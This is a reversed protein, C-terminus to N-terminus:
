IRLKSYAENILDSNPAQNLYYHFRSSLEPKGIALFVCVIFHQVKQNQKPYNKIRNKVLADLDSLTSLKQSERLVDCFNYIMKLAFESNLPLIGNKTPEGLQAILTFAHETGYLRLLVSPLVESLLEADHSECRHFVGYVEELVRDYKFIHQKQIDPDERFVCSIFIRLSYVFNVSATTYERLSTQISTLFQNIFSASYFILHEVGSTILDLLWPPLHLIQYAECIKQNISNKFNTQLPEEMIRFAISWLLKTYEYSMPVDNVLIPDSVNLQKGIEQLVFGAVYQVVPKIVELSSSQLLYIFGHMTAERVFTCEFTLGLEVWQLIQKAKNADTMGPDISELGLITMSKFLSYLVFGVDPHDNLYGGRIVNKMESYCFEFSAREDFLDSLYTMSRITASLLPLPLYDLGRSFWHSYNDFLARVSSATDLECTSKLLHESISIPLRALNSQDKRASSEPTTERILTWLSIASLQNMDYISGDYGLHEINEGYVLMPDSKTQLKWKLKKLRQYSRSQYFLDSTERHKIYFRGITNGPEPILLSHILISTLADVARSSCLIRESLNASNDNTIENGTPTSSLVGFLSMWIEEFQTRSIWGLWVVRAAFDNLIDINSLLHINVLPIHLHGSATLEVRPSWNMKVATMSIIALPHLLPLRLLTKLLVDILQDKEKRSKRDFHAKVLGQATEAMGRIMGEATLDGFKMNLKQPNIFELWKGPSETQQAQDKDLLSLLETLLRHLSEACTLPQKTFMQQASEHQLVFILGEITPSCIFNRAICTSVYNSMRDLEPITFKKVTVNHRKTLLSIHKFLFLKTQLNKDSTNVEIPYRDLIFDVINQTKELGERYNTTSLNISDLHILMADILTCCSLRSNRQPISEIVYQIDNLELSFIEKYLSFDSCISSSSLISAYFNSTSADLSPNPLPSNTEDIQQHTSENSNERRDTFRNSRNSKNTTLDFLCRMLRSQNAMMVAEKQEKKKMGCLEQITFFLSALKVNNSIDCPKSLSSSRLIKAIRPYNDRKLISIIMKLLLLLNGEHNILKPNNSDDLSQLCLGEFINAFWVEPEVVHSEMRMVLMQEDVNNFLCFLVPVMQRLKVHSPSNMGECDKLYQAISDLPRYISPSMASLSLVAQQVTVSELSKAFQKWIPAFVSMFDISYIAKKEDSASHLFLLWIDLMKAPQYQFLDPSKALVADYLLPSESRQVILVELLVIEVASLVYIASKEDAKEVLEVFLKTIAELKVVGTKCLVILFQAIQEFLERNGKQMDRLQLLVAEFLTKKPDAMTYVIGDRMLECMTILIAKRCELIPYNIYYQILNTVFDEFHSLASTIEPATPCHVKCLVDLRLWGLKRMILKDTFKQNKMNECSTDYDIMIQELITTGKPVIESNNMKLIDLNISAASKGFVLKFLQHLFKTTSTPCFDYVVKVYLLIEELIPKAQQYTMMELYIGLCELATELLSLFKDSNEKTLSQMFNKHAGQIYPCLQRLVSSELFSSQKYSHISTGLLRSLDAIRSPSAKKPNASLNPRSLISSSSQSISSYHEAILSYYLNLTRLPLLLLRDMSSSDPLYNLSSRDPQKLENASRVLNSECYGAFLTACVRMATTLQKATFVACDAAEIMEVFLGCTLISTRDVALWVQPYAAPPFIQLLESFIEILAPLRHLEDKSTFELLGSVFQCLRGEIYAKPKETQFRYAPHLNLVLPLPPNILDQALNKSDQLLSDAECMNLIFNKLGSIAAKSVKPDSDFLLKNYALIASSEFNRRHKSRMRWWEISSLLEACSIKLLFFSSTAENCALQLVLPLLDMQDVTTLSGIAAQLLARKRIPQFSSAIRHYSIVEVCIGSKRKDLSFSFAVAAACLQDDDHMAFRCVDLLSQRCDNMIVSVDSLDANESILTLCNLALIKHSIRVKRDNKLGKLGALLFRRGVFAACYVYLNPDPDTIDDPLPQKIGENEMDDPSNQEPSMYASQDTENLTLDASEDMEKERQSMIAKTVEEYIDAHLLPDIIEQSESEDGMETDTSDTASDANEQETETPDNQLDDVFDAMRDDSVNLNAVSGAPTSFLSMAVSGPGRVSGSQSLTEALTLKRDLQSRAVFDTPIYTLFWPLPNSFIIQLLEMASVIIESHSSFLCGVTGNIMYKINEESISDPSKVSLPWLLKLTNLSGVLRNKGENEDASRINMVCRALAKILLSPYYSALQGIVVCAARNSSGALDLSDAAVRYLEYAKDSQQDRMRPGIADFIAPSHSIIAQQVTEEPRKLMSAMAFMIHAGYSIIRNSRALRIIQSLRVFAAAISRAKTNKHIETILMVLARSYHQGLLLSKFITDISEEALSRISQETHNFLNFLAEVAKGLADGYRKDERSLVLYDNAVIFDRIEVCCSREKDFSISKRSNLPVLENAKIAADLQTVSRLLRDTKNSM